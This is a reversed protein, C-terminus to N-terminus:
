IRSDFLVPFSAAVWVGYDHQDDTCEIDGVQARWVGPVALIPVDLERVLSEVAGVIALARDYMDEVDADGSRVLATLWLTVSEDRTRPRGMTAIAQTATVGPPPSFAYPDRVGVLLADTPDDTIQPGAIVRVGPLATEAAARLARRLAPITSTAM